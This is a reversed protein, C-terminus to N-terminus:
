RVPKFYIAPEENQKMQPTYAGWTTILRGGERSLSFMTQGPKYLQVGFQNKVSGDGFSVFKVDLRDAGAKAACRITTNTQYGNATFRCGKPGVTLRHDVFISIGQGVADRGLSENFSYTGNWGATQAMAAGSAGALAIAGLAAFTMTQRM